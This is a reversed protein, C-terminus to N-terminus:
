FKKDLMFLTAAVPKPPRPMKAYVLQAAYLAEWGMERDKMTESYGREYKRNKQLKHATQPL